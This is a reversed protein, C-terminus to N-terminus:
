LIGKENKKGRKKKRRKNYVKNKLKYVTKQIKKSKKLGPWLLISVIKMVYMIIAAIFSILYFLTEHKRRNELKEYYASNAFKAINLKEM